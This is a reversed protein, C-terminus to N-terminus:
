DSAAELRTLTNRTAASFTAEWCRDAQQLQMVIPLAVASTLPLGLAPGKGAVRIRTQRAPGRFLAVNTIGQAGRRGKYTIRKRSAKWREGGPVSASLMPDGASWACFDVGHQEPAGFDPPTTAAGEGWTWGLRDGGGQRRRAQLRSAGPRSAQSCGALPRAGCAGLGDCAYCAPCGPDYTGVEPVACGPNIGDCTGKCPGGPECPTGAPLVAHTCTGAGDCRDSTCLQGDSDCAIDAPLPLHTCVGGDDCVGRTCENGSACSSGADQLRCAFCCQGFPAECQEGADLTDNGCTARSGIFTGTIEDCTPVPLSVHVVGQILASEDSLSGELRYGCPGRSLTFARTAPDIMGTGGDASSVTTGSQTIVYELTVTDRSPFTATVSWTGNMDPQAAASGAVLLLAFLAGTRCLRIRM